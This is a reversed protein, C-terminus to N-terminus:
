SLVALRERLRRETDSDGYPAHQLLQAAVSALASEPTSASRLCELERMVQTRQEYLHNFQADCRPIPTPYDRIHSDLEQRVHMLFAQLADCVSPANGMPDNAAATDGDDLTM